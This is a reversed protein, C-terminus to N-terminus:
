DCTLRNRIFEILKPDNMSYGDNEFRDRDLTYFSKNRCTPRYVLTGNQDSIYCFRMISCCGFVMFDYDWTFFGSLVIASTDQFVDNLGIRVVNDTTNYKDHVNLYEGNVTDKLFFTIYRNKSKFQDPLTFEINNDAYHYSLTKPPMYKQYKIYKDLNTEQAECSILVLGALCLFFLTKIQVLQFFGQDM